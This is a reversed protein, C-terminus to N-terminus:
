GAASWIPGCTPDRGSSGGSRIPGKSGPFSITGGWGSSPGSGSAPDARDYWATRTNVDTNNMGCAAVAILVEDGAPEPIPVDDRYELRDLDGHGTLLVARM